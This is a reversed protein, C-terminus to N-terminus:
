SKDCVIYCSVACVSTFTLSALKWKEPNKPDFSLTVVTGLFSNLFSFKLFDDHLFGSVVSDSKSINGDSALNKIIWDKYHLIHTYVGPLQDHGCIWGWSVLGILVKQGNQHCILPGGSDGQCSDKGPAGACINGSFVRGKFKGNAFNEFTKYCKRYSWIPVQVTMLHDPYTMSNDIAGWGAIWCKDGANPVHTENELRVAEVNEEHDFDFPIKVTVIAIDDHYEEHDYKRHIKVHLVEKYNATNKVKSTGSVIRWKNMDKKFVCHAATLFQWKNIIAGSCITQYTNQDSRLHHIQNCKTTIKTSQIKSVQPFVHRGFVAM